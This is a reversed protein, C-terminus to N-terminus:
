NKNTNYSQTITKILAPFLKLAKYMTSYAGVRFCMGQRMNM